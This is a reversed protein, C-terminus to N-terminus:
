NLDDRRQYHVPFGFDRGKKEELEDKGNEQHEGEKKIGTNGQARADLKRLKGCAEM